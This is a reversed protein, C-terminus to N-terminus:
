IEQILFSLCLSTLDNAGMLDLDKEKQARYRTGLPSM